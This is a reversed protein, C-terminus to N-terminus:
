IMSDEEGVWREAIDGTVVDSFRICTWGWISFMSEGVSLMGTDTESM